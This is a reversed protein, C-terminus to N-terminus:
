HEPEQTKDSGIVAVSRATDVDSVFQNAARELANTAVHVNRLIDLDRAIM